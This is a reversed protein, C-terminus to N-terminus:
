WAVVYTKFYKEYFSPNEPTERAPIDGRLVLIQDISLFADAFAIVGVNLVLLFVAMDYISATIMRILYSFTPISKMFLLFRLWILLATCTQLEWFGISKTDFSLTQYVIIAPTVLNVVKTLSKFFSFGRILLASVEILM